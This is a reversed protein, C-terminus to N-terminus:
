NIVKEIEVITWNPNYEIFNKLMPIHGSGVLIMIKEDEKEVTKQIISYMYLNRKFWESVLFAGAFNEKGGGKNALNLYWKIDELITQPKNYYYLIETLSKNSSFLKSEKKELRELEISDKSILDFQKAITMQQILSDYRFSTRYDIAYIKKQKM